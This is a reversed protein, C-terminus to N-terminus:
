NFFFYVQKNKMSDGLYNGWDKIVEDNFRSKNIQLPEPNYFLNGSLFLPSYSIDAFSEPTFNSYGEGDYYGDFCAYFVSYTLLLILSFTKLLKQSFTM